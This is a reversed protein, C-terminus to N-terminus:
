IYVKWKSSIALDTLSGVVDNGTYDSVTGPSGSRIWYKYTPTPTGTDRAVMSYYMVFKRSTKNYINQLKTGPSRYTSDFAYGDLSNNIYYTSMSVQAQDYGPKGIYSYAYYADKKSYNESVICYADLTAMNVQSFASKQLTESEFRGPGSFSAGGYGISFLIEGNYTNPM